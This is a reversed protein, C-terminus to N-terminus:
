KQKKKRRREKELQRLHLTLNNVQYKEWNRIQAQIGYIERNVSSMSGGMHKSNNHNQQKNQIEEQIEETVEQNNLFM